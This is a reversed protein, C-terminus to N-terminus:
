GAAADRALGPRGPSFAALAAASAANGGILEAVLKGSYPGLELGYGAHGAAVFVNPHDSLAGLVPMRDASVPRFGVRAEVLTADRLSPALRFAEALVASVGGATARADYGVGDERTAGAVLRAEPFGLLYQHSFGLVLPWRGTAAGPVDLHVLQGRQPRVFPAVGLPELLSSSWAGSAVVVADAPVDESGVRLGSVRGSELWLTARGHRLEVGAARASARLAGLLRRGDIRAAGSCYVAGLVSEGLLPFASRAQAPGLRAVEGVHAFGEARRRECEEALAPLEALEEDRTAVQLAGIIDYGVGDHGERALQAVLEPYFARAACLLPLVAPVEVFHDLPPLIGAGAATAQGAERADVLVVESGLERLHRAVSVGVLGGGVIAVKSM